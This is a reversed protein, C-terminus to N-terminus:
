REQANPHSAAAKDYRKKLEDAWVGIEGGVINLIKACFAEALIIKREALSLEEARYVSGCHPCKEEKPGDPPASAANTESSQDPSGNAAGAARHHLVRAAVEIREWDFRFKSLEQNILAATTMFRMWDVTFGWNSDWLKAVGAIGLLLLAFEGTHDNLWVCYACVGNLGNGFGVKLLPPIAALAVFLFIIFHIAQATHKKSKHHDLYWDLTSNALSESHDRIHELNKAQNDKNSWDLKPFPLATSLIAHRKLRLRLIDPHLAPEDSQDAM